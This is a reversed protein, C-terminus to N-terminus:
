RIDVLGLDCLFDGARRETAVRMILPLYSVIRLSSFLTFALLTIQRLEVFTRVSAVTRLFNSSSSICGNAVRRRLKRRDDLGLDRMPCLHDCVRSQLQRTTVGPAVVFM